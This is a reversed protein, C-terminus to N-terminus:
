HRLTVDFRGPESKGGVEARVIDALRDAHLGHANLAEAPTGCRPVETIGIGRFAPPDAPRLEALARALLDAQGGRVFHNEVVILHTVGVVLDSLWRQDVRNLWPLAVVTLDIGDVALLEAARILEALVIPGAGVTVVPGGARVVRGRGLELPAAPLGAVADPVPVSVLRLYVSCPTDVCFEVAAHVEAANVPELVVLDPIAGVASM